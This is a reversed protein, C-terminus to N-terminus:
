PVDAPRETEFMELDGSSMAGKAAVFAFKTWNALMEADNPLSAGSPWNQMVATKTSRSWPVMPPAAVSPNTQHTKADAESGYVDHPRAVPWWAWDVGEWNETKCQRFDAQWPQAMQRSFHGADVLVGIGSEVDGKYRSPAGKRIRFPELYIAPHRIQWSVEIGPFFPGGVCNELAAMDLGEPTVAGAAPVPPPATAGTSTFNGTSWREFMAYQTPTVAHRHRAAVKWKDYPDDGLMRPMNQETHAISGHLKGPIHLAKFLVERIAANAGPLALSPYLTALSHAVQSAKFLWDSYLARRLVPWIDNEFSPKYTTLSVKGWAKGKLEKNIDRLSSLVTDYKVDNTPLTMERAALDFLTDYLTTIHQGYPAFVPPAVLVWAGVADVPGQNKFKIRASVPGDSVDDFWGPNNAYTTIPSAAIGGVASSLGHGGLVMLRGQGDTKLEGLYEIPPTPPTKPWYETGGSAGKRFEIGSQSRGKIKRTGPDIWLDRLNAPAPQRRKPKAPPGPGFVPDGLLGDFQFFAAKKNAIHVTWEIWEIDKTDLNVEAAPQFKGKGNDVYQWVRFRAAQRKIAGGVKFPPVKSGVAPDGEAPRGPIEPGIFFDTTADGVRAVGIAPHIKYIPKLAM